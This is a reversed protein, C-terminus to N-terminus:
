LGAFNAWKTLLLSRSRQKQGFVQDRSTSEQQYVHDDEMRCGKLSPCGKLSHLAPDYRSHDIVAIEQIGVGASPRRAALSSADFSRVTGRPAEARFSSKRKFSFM